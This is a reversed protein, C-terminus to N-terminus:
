WLLLFFAGALGWEGYLGLALDGESEGFATVYIFYTVALPSWTSTMSLALNQSLGILNRM